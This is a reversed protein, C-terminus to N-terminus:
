RSSYPGTSRCVAAFEGHEVPNDAEDGVWVLMAAPRPGGLVACQQTRGHAGLAGAVDRFLANGGLSPVTMLVSLRPADAARGPALFADRAYGLLQAGRRSEQTKNDLVILALAPFEISLDVLGRFFDRVLPADAVDEPDHAIV